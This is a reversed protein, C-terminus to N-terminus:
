DKADNLLKIIYDIEDSNPSLKSKILNLVSQTYLQKLLTPDNQSKVVIKQLMKLDGFSM